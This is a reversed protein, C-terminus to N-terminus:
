PEYHYRWAESLVQNDQHLVLSLDVPDSGSGTLDFFTRWGGTVENKETVLNQVKGRSAWVSAEIAADAALASGQDGNFDIVFRLPTKDHEPTIRTAEVRWLKCREPQALCAFLDYAYHLEEGRRPKEQPVWYAVVNDNWENPSPIEVLEVTGKGWGRVPQVWLSPRLEYRGALDEYDAFQRDRQLLGFAKLDPQPFQSVLHQKQPNILPRWLCFETNSQILLGDSDHVEPRFDPLYHTRNEGVLFMSTMPAIGVKQPVKRFFLGAEVGVKTTTGPEIVMRYAGAVSPSNLLAYLTLNTDAPAPKQIWFDTFRPFEEGSPEATDVALGRFSAGYRQQAGIVRFYSAGLFAAVEDQKNPSNLPYLVRLGAFHLGLPVPHPFHNRGYDFQAPDFGFERVQGQDVLYIRAPAQYIFGRHFFQFTFRLSEAQWPGKQPLFRICQYDDYSLNKLSDPLGPDNDPQYEGEALEKAKSLLAGYSFTGASQCFSVNPAVLHCLCVGLWLSLQKMGRGM